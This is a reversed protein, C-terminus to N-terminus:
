IGPIISVAQCFKNDPMTLSFQGNWKETYRQVNELGFGHDPAFRSTGTDSNDPCSNEIYIIFLKERTSISVRIYPKHKLTTRLCAQYANELLNGLIICLEYDPLHILSRQIHIDTDFSIGANQCMSIYNSVLADIVLNGTNITIFTKELDGLFQNMAPILKTTEGQEIGTRLYFIHSKTEHIVRRTNRYATSIANFHETQMSIQQDLLANQAALEQNRLLNELLYYNFANLSLISCLTVLPFASNSYLINSDSISVLLILSILPTIFVSIKFAFPYPKIRRNWFLSVALLLLFGIVKCAFSIYADNIFIDWKKDSPNLRGSFFLFFVTESLGNLFLLLILTFLKKSFPSQYLTMLLLYCCINVLLSILIKGTTYSGASILTYLALLFETLIFFLWYLAPPLATKRQVLFTDLATKTYFIDFLSGIFMILISFGSIYTYM